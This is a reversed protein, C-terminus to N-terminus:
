TAGPGHKCCIVTGPWSVPTWDAAPQSTPLNSPQFTPPHTLSTEKKAM